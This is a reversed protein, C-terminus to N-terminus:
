PPGSWNAATSRPGIACTRIVSAAGCGRASWGRTSARAAPQDVAPTTPDQAFAAGPVMAVLAACLLTKM